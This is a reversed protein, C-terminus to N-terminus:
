GVPAAEGESGEGAQTDDLPPQKEKVVEGAQTDDLPPQKEKVVEGAQTDDLLHQKEGDSLTSLTVDIPLESASIDVQTHVTDAKGDPVGNEVQQRQSETGDEFKMTETQLEGSDTTRPAASEDYELPPMTEASSNVQSHERSEGDMEPQEIRRRNVACTVHLHLSSCLPLTM